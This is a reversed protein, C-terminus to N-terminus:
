EDDEDDYIEAIQSDDDHGCFPCYDPYGEVECEEYKLTYTSGCMLCEIDKHEM